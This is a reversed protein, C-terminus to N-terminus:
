KIFKSVLSRGGITAWGTTILAWQDSVGLVSIAEIDPIETVIKLAGVLIAFAGLIHIKYGDLFNFNFM